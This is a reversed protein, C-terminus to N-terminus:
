FRGTKQLDEGVAAKGLASEVGVGRARRVRKSKSCATVRCLWNGRLLPTLGNVISCHRRQLPMSMHLFTVDDVFGSTCLIDSRLAMLSSRAVSLMCLYLKTFDTHETRSFTSASAGATSSHEHDDCDGEGRGREELLM